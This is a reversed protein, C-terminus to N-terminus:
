HGSHTGPRIPKIAMTTILIPMCCPRDPSLVRWSGNKISPIRRGKIKKSKNKTIRLEDCKLVNSFGILDSQLRPVLVFRLSIIVSLRPDLPPLFNFLIVLLDKLSNLWILYISSEGPPKKIYLSYKIFNFSRHILNQIFIELITGPIIYELFIYSIYIVIKLYKKHSIINLYM